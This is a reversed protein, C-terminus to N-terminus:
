AGADADAVIAPCVDAGTTMDTCCTIAGDGCTGGDLVTAGNPLPCTGANVFSCGVCVEVPYSFPPAEVDGGGMSGYMTTTAVVQATEGIGLKGAIAELLDSPLLLVSMATLGGDPDIPASALTEFRTLGDTRMTALEAATFLDPDIFSIDVRAGEVYVVRQAELEGDNSNGYNKLLPHLYYDGRSADATGRTLGPAATDICTMAGPANNQVVVFPKDNEACAPALAVALLLLPATPNRM